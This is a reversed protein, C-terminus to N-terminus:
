ECTPSFEDRSVTLDGNANFTIHINQRVRFNPAQGRGIMRFYIPQSRVFPAGDNAINQILSQSFHGTYVDGSDDGVGSIRDSQHIGIHVGGSGDMTLRVLFHSTVTISVDEGIGDNGCPVFQIDNFTSRDNVLVEAGATAAALILAAAAIVTPALKGSKQARLM